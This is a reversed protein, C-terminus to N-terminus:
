LHIDSFCCNAQHLTQDSGKYDQDVCFINLFVMSETM